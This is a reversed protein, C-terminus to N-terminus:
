RNEDEIGVSLTQWHKQWPQTVRTARRSFVEGVQAQFLVAKANEYDYVDLSPNKMFFHEVDGILHSSIADNEGYFDFYLILDKMYSLSGLEIYESDADGVTMALTNEQVVDLDDSPFEYIVTIPTHVADMAFWGGVTLYTVLQEQVSEVLFRDRKGGDAM